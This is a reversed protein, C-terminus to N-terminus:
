SNLMYKLFMEGERQLASVMSTVDVRREVPVQLSRGSRGGNQSIEGQEEREEESEDSEDEEEDGEDVDM